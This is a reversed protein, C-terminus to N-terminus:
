YGDEFAKALEELVDDSCVSIAKCYMKAVYQREHKQHRKLLKQYKSTHM